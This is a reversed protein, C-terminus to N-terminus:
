IRTGPDGIYSKLGEDSLVNTLQAAAQNSKSIFMDDDNRVKYQEFLMLQDHIRFKEIIANAKEHSNGMAVLLEGVFNVSSDFTERKIHKVGAELFDFANGRNRARAFIELNPYRKRLMKAVKVATDADDIALIFYKAKHVGASELLDDRMVDGYYVKNGFKRLLEVQDADHDIAVFPVRQARLIRGFMQGFRGFGAIIVEPSEDKIEDYDPKEGNRAHEQLKEDIIVLVPNMAMSITIIATLLQVTSENTLKSAMAISFIVFAFEGGQATTLAMMKSHFHGLKFFRGLGYIISGKIALYIIAYGFVKLPESIILPLSVTMGVSIFFLGLLLSKFPELNAELEHRYESDALLVGAIFTGLAASLGIKLMIMAVGMVVFLATATFIERQNTRAIVRFFPQILFRSILILAILFLPFLWMVNKLNSEEGSGHGLSPIIALAPIAILDQMLLISFSSKGFVTNFNNRSTLSQIAFATSSLSMGFSLVFSTVPNFDFAFMGIFGFILTAFLIQLGGLGMLDKKMSWLKRPQIELGIVFLLFIVGLEAFHMVSENDHIFGFGFPGVILGAILYGLVSGFGLRHFLPVMIISAGIFILTQEIALNM